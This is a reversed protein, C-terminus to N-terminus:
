KEQKLEAIEVRVQDLRSRLQAGNRVKKGSLEMLLRAEEEELDRIRFDGSFRVFGGDRIGVGGLRGESKASGIHSM